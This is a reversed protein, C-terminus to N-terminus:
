SEGRLTDNLEKGDIARNILVERGAGYWRVACTEVEDAADPEALITLAEIGGLVPFSAIAGKSGLAWTPKLGLHRAAICTEIGEGIHLGGPVNEDVDLKIAAGGVPGLFRRAIKRGERDLYTRSVAQPSDSHIHRFLALMAAIRTHWRLVDNALGDGLELDRSLLYVEALTGRPDVGQCWLSLAASIRANDIEPKAPAIWREPARVDRHQLERKLGLRERVYDRCTRWDDGAHSFAIFGDTTSASLRVSLSHDRRSHGPGPCVVQSGVVEGGLVRALPRLDTM